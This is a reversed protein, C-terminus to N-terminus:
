GVARIASRYVTLPQAGVVTKSQETNQGYIYFAPTAPISVRDAADIAANIDAVFRKRNTNYATRVASTNIGVARAIRLLKTSDAWGSGPKKQHKFVAQHWKWFLGPDTAGVTKWVAKSVMAAPWSNKGINPLELFVFRVRGRRVENEILQSHISTAFQKCHSCLYDSWYLVSVPARDYGM